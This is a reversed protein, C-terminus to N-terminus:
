SNLITRACLRYRNPLWEIFMEQGSATDLANPRASLYQMSRFFWMWFEFPTLEGCGLLDEPPIPMNGEVLLPDRLDDASLREISEFTSTGATVKNGEALEVEETFDRFFTQSSLDGSARGVDVRSEAVRVQVDDGIADVGFSTGRVTAVVDSAQVTVDSNTGLLKEIRTWTRGAELELRARVTDKEPREAVSVLVETNEELLTRGYGSWYIAASSDAGTRVVDGEELAMYNTAIFSRENREYTVDGEINRLFAPVSPVDGGASNMMTQYFLWGGIGIAAGLLVVLTVIVILLIKIGKKM